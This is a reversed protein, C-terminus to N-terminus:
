LMYDSLQKNPHLRNNDIKGIGEVYGSDTFQWFVYSRRPTRYYDAIWYNFHSFESKLVNKYFSYGCYIIPDQGYEKNIVECFEHVQKRIDENSTKHQKYEIDLVPILDGKQLKAHKIFNYAQTKGPSTYSFFHYAGVIINRKKAAKRYQAYKHDQHTTGETCKLFVFDPKNYRVLANWNVYRQHHSIDIGWIGQRDVSSIKIDSNIDCSVLWLTIFVLGRIMFLKTNRM